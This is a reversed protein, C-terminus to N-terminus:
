VKNTGSFTIGGVGVLLAVTCSQATGNDFTVPTNDAAYVAPPLLFGATFTQSQDFRM